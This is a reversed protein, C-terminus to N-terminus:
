LKKGTEKEIFDCAKAFEEKIEALMTIKKENPSDFNHHAYELAKAMPFAGISASAGKLDHSASYWIKNDNEALSKEIKVINDNSTSFFMEFLEREFDKRGLTAERLFRLDVAPSRFNDDNKM